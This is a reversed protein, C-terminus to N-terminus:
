QESSLKIRCVFSRKLGTNFDARQSFHGTSSSVSDSVSLRKKSEALLIKWEIDKRFSTLHLPILTWKQEASKSFQFSSSQVNSPFSFLQQRRKMKPSLLHSYPFRHLLFVRISNIFQYSYAFDFMLVRRLKIKMPFNSSAKQHFCIEKSVCSSSTLPGVMWELMGNPYSGLQSVCYFFIRLMLCFQLRFMGTKEAEERVELVKEELSSIILRITPM